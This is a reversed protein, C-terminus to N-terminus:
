RRLSLAATGVCVPYMDADGLPNISGISRTSQTLPGTVNAVQTNAITDGAHGVEPWSAAPAGPVATL